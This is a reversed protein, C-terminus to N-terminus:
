LEIDFLTEEGLGSRELIKRQFELASENFGGQLKSKEMFVHFKVKLNDPPRYCSYDVLYVPRPRSMLYATTGLVVVGSLAMVTIFNYRLHLYIKGIDDLNLQYTYVATVAILPVLCLTFLHAMLYHYGLKVHKPKISALFNPLHRTGQQIEITASFQHHSTTAM